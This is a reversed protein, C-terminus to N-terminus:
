AATPSSATPSRGARTRAPARRARAFGDATRFVAIAAAASPRRQPGRAAARRRRAGVRSGAGTVAREDRPEAVACSTSREARHRARRVAEPPGPRPARAVPRPRRGGQRDRLARAARGAREPDLVATASRARHGVREVFGYTRELYEGHERYHQLFALAVRMAEERTTSAHALLDGKRVRRAPPAASTSRGAARSPSSGSTRSTPRPATARAARRRGVQGQAAHAAGGDRARARHRRRDRRRPRLPLLRHRRVDQGHAGGQRLRPGVAHRAGGLDGAAAGQAVGLLDIRQGGTIKVM